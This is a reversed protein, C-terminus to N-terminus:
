RRTSRKRSKAVEDDHTEKLREPGIGFRELWEPDIRAGRLSNAEELNAGELNAGELNAGELNAESLNARSLNVEQLNARALNAESLDAGSLNARSLNAWELNASGLKAGPLSAFPLAAGMLIAYHASILELSPQMLNVNFLDCLDLCQRSGRVWGFCHLALVNPAGARQGQLRRIMAGFSVADPWDIESREKTAQACAYLAVVLAEETNRAQRTMEQYSGLDLKTMPLSNRLQDNMLEVITTHWEGVPYGRELKLAMEREIFAFLDRDMASPGTLRLWDVLANEVDKGQKRKNRNRAREEAINAIENVLRRAALYEGFSKHTFEFSREGAARKAQRFYFAALLSTAGKEAGKEFAQLRDTLGAQACMEAICNVSVGREGAHWAALGVEELIDEFEGQELKEVDPLQREGWRREYVAELLDAYLLNLNFNDDFQIKGRAFSLALLYNLLPQGTIEDISATKLPEPLSLYGRGSARGYNAWWLDRQDQNLLEAPDNFQGRSLQDPVTDQPVFYPLVHLIQGPRRFRRESAQVVVERGGLIVQLRLEQDNIREVARDLEDVFDSAAEQGVKGSMALEDLGDVFMVLRRHEEKHDLPDHPLIELDSTVFNHIADRFRGEFELRHLPIYLVGFDTDRTLGAAFMKASSTKGCGPGGCVVRIADEKDAQDIWERLHDALYVVHRVESGTPETELRGLRKPHEVWYARLPVYVQDLGFSEDFVPEEVQRQLYAANKFWAREKADAKAFPTEVRDLEQEISRYFSPDKAWERHLAFTFYAGLRRTVSSVETENLGFSRLWDGFPHQAAEIIPLEAPHDFFDQNIRVPTTDLTADLRAVLGAPDDPKVDHSKLAEVTLKAMARALTRRILHWALVAPPIPADTIKFAFAADIASSITAPANGTWYGFTAKLLAKFVGPYDVELQKNWAGVPKEVDFGFDEDDIEAALNTM